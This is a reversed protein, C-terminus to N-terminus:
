LNKRWTLKLGAVGGLHRKFRLLSEHPERGGLTSRGLDVIQLGLDRGLQHVGATLLVAPSLYNFALPSAPYFNHLVRESAQIVVTLAAWEGGPARVSLLLHERAFLRFLEQLRDLPLSLPPQGREARCAAIFEYAAPLLLPSRFIFRLGTRWDRRAAAGGTSAIVRPVPLTRYLIGTAIGTLAVVAYVFSAHVVALALGALTPGTILALESFSSVARNGRELDERPVILPFVTSASPAHVSTMCGLALLLVLYAPVPAHLWSAVGLGLGILGTGTAAFGAPKRRDSRDALAGSWTFLLLVPLVQVAGVYAFVLPDGTRAFLEWGVTASIVARGFTNLARATVFRAIVSQAM